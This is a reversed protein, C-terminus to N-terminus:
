REIDSGDIKMGAVVLDLNEYYNMTITEIGLGTELSRISEEERIRNEKNERKKKRQLINPIM